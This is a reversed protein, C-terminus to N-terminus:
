MWGLEKLAWPANWVKCMKAVKGDGNMTLIYVYDTRTQKHTPPVPGGDGVHTGTFTAFFLANRTREDYASGHLEYSCGKLPNKGVAAMWETYAEVTKVDVLPECQAAFPAGAAVYQACRGWGKLSECAHFFKTANEFASM